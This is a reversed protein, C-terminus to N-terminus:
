FKNTSNNRTTTFKDLEIMLNKQDKFQFNKGDSNITPAMFIRVTGTKVSNTTNEVEINYMFDDHNIHTIRAYTSGPAAFDLGRSLEVDTKQWFTHLNNEEQCAGSEDISCVSVNTVQIGDFSLQPRREINIIEFTCSLLARLIFM